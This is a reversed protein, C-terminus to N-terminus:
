WAHLGRSLPHIIQGLSEGFVQGSEQLQAPLLQAAPGELEVRQARQEGQRPSVGHNLPRCCSFCDDAGILHARPVPQLNPHRGVGAM